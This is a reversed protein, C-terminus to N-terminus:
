GAGEDIYGDFAARGNLVAHKAAVAANGYATTSLDSFYGAWFCGGAMAAAGASLKLVAGLVHVGRGMVGGKGLLGGELVADSCPGGATVLKRRETRCRSVARDAVVDPLSRAVSRNVVAAGNLLVRRPVAPPWV